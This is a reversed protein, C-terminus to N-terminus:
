TGSLPEFVENYLLEQNDHRFCRVCLVGGIDFSFTIDITVPAIIRKKLLPLELDFIYHCKKESVMSFRETLDVDGSYQYIKMNVQQQREVTTTFTYYRSTLPLTWGKKLMILVKGNGIGLGYSTSLTKQLAKPNTCDSHLLCMAGLAVCHDPDVSPFQCSSGFLTQLSKTVSALKSSGGVLFVYSINGPQLVNSELLRVVCDITRKIIPSITMSLTTATITFADLADNVESLDIDTSLSTQLMIKGNECMSRLRSNKRRASKSPPILEIHEEEMVANRIYECLALDVDNGGCHNDGNEGLVQIGSSEDYTLLSADFTGGGFDYVIMKEQPLFQINSNLVYSLAAATPEAILKRVTLGALTAALKIAKCQRSDFNAPITLYAEDYVNPACYYDARKKIAKFIESAVEICSRLGGHNNVVFRPYGDEGRVVDCGFIDKQDMKEYDEYRLGILRKVSAVVYKGPKGLNIKAINGIVAVDGNYMVYSPFLYNGNSDTLVEMKRKFIYAASNSTGFDIALTHDM